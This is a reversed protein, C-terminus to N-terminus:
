ILDDGGRGENGVERKTAPMMQRQWSGMQTEREM